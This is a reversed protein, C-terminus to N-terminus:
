CLERFYSGSRINGAFIIYRSYSISNAHIQLQDTALEGESKPKRNTFNYVEDVPKQHEQFSCM